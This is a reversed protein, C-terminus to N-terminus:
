KVWTLLWAPIEDGSYYGEHICFDRLLYCYLLVHIQDCNIHFFPASIDLGKDHCSTTAAMCGSAAMDKRLRAPSLTVPYVPDKTLALGEILTFVYFVTYYYYQNDVGTMSLVLSTRAQVPVFFVQFTLSTAAWNHKISLRHGKFSSTKALTFSLRITSFISEAPYKM